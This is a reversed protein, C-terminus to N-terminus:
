RKVRRFQLQPWYIILLAFGIFLLHVWWLASFMPAQNRYVPRISASLAITYVSYTVIAPLVMRFRGQRPKTRAFAFGLFGLVLAIPPMLIRSLLETHLWRGGRDLLEQNSYLHAKDPRAKKDPESIRVSQSQFEIIQFANDSGPVGSIQVGDVFNFYRPQTIDATDLVASESWIFSKSDPDGFFLGQITSDTQKRSTDEVYLVAGDSSLPNFVNPQILDFSTRSILSRWLEDAKNSSYPALWLSIFWLIICIVAAPILTATILTRQGIGSAVMSTVEQEAYLKGLGLITGLYLGLPLVESIYAPYNLFLFFFVESGIGNAVANELIGVFRTTSFLALAVVTIALTPVFISKAIYRYIVPM